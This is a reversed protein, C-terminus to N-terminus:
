PLLILRSNKASIHTQRSASACVPLPHGAYYDLGYEWTRSVGELCATEIRPTNARWFARVSVREDLIPFTRTKLYLVGTAAAIALALLAFENQGRWALFWVAGAVLLFPLAPAFEVHAQRTGVLLAEPLLSAIAPIAVLLLGSAALWWQKAPAKELGVALVIAIAPLLPLVYGPLKNKAASFFILGYIAWGALLRVRVDDYLRSRAALGFLPTWPFFGALLIPLYFWFPQVHELSPTLFRAVHQKWFFDNWFAAGNRWYCLLYWPAAVVIAGALTALRKRRTILLLPAFLVVPVFGKALISLGLLAGAIWGPGVGGTGHRRTDFLAILIAANLAAAMPLDTLAAFSYAMWGASTALIITAAYAIRDSFERSLVQFFFILFAVSALALPLRAAWEDRFHLKTAIATMWYLLPPKEFWPQGNLRPTIWDGSQAMERGASAYRPEDPGLFGTGGLHLLYLLLL